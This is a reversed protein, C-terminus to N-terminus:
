FKLGAARAQEAIAKVAGHYDNGGRDFVIRKVGQELARKAALEAVAKAAEIGGRSALRQKLEGELTSAAAVTRGAQDDIIQVYYNKHSKFVHLRPREPSGILRRRLRVHRKRRETTRTKSHM